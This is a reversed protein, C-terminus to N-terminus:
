DKKQLNSFERSHRPHSNRSVNSDSLFHVRIVRSIKLTRFSACGGVIHANSPSEVRPACRAETPRPLNARQTPSIDRLALSPRLLRNQKSDRDTLSFPVCGLPQM